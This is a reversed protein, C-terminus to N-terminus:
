NCTASGENTEFLVTIERESTTRLVVTFAVSQSETVEYNDPDFEVM